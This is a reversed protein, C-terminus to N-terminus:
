LEEKPSSYGIYVCTIVIALWDFVVLYGRGEAVHRAVGSAAVHLAVLGIMFRDFRTM